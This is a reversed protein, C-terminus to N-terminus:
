VRRDIQYAQEARALGVSACAMFVAGFVLAMIIVELASFKVVVPPALTIQKLRKQTCNQCDGACGNFTHM